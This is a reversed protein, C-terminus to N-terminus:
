FRENVNKELVEEYKWGRITKKRERKKRIDDMINRNNAMTPPLSKMIRLNKTELKKKKKKIM